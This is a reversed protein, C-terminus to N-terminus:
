RRCRASESHRADAVVVGDVGSRRINRAARERMLPSIAGAVVTAGSQQGIRIATTGVGCGIDLVRDGSAPTGVRAAPRDFGRGGPHIVRKGLVALFAYPDLAQVEATSLQRM